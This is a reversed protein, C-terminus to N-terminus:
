YLKTKQWSEVITIVCHLNGHGFLVSKQLYPGIKLLCLTKAKFPITTNHTTNEVMYHLRNLPTM